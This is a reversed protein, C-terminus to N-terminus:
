QVTAPAHQTVEKKQVEEQLLMPTQLYAYQPVDADLMIFPRKPEFFRLEVIPSQILNVASLLNGPHFKLTFAEDMILSEETPIPEIIEDAVGKISMKFQIQPAGDSMSIMILTSNPKGEDLARDSYLKCISLLKLLSEKKVKFTLNPKEALAKRIAKVGIWSYEGPFSSFIFERTLSDSDIKFANINGLSIFFKDGEARSFSPLAAILMDGYPLSMPFKKDEALVPLDFDSYYSFSSGNGSTIFNEHTNLFFSQEFPKLTGSGITLSLRQLVEFLASPDYEAYDTIEKKEPFKEEVPDFHAITHRRKGQSVTLKNKSFSFKVDGDDFLSLVSLLIHDVCLAGKKKSEAGKLLLFSKFNRSETRFSIGQEDAVILFTKLIPSTSKSPLSRKVFNLSDVFVSRPLTFEM